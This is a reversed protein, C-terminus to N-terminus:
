TIRCSNLHSLLFFDNFYSNISATQSGPPVIEFVNSSLWYAALSTALICFFLCFLVFFVPFSERM